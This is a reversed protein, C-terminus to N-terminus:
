HAHHAHTLELKVSAEHKAVDIGLDDPGFSKPLMNSLKCITVKNLKATTMIVDMDIQSLVAAENLCQRCAGCPAVVNEDMEDTHEANKSHGYCVVAKFKRVGEANARLMASREACITSGHAANEYNAGTIIQGDVSLLAAGVCFDSYPCYAAAAAERAKRVLKQYELPITDFPVAQPAANLKTLAFQLANEPKEKEIQEQVQKLLAIVTESDTVLKQKKTTPESMSVLAQSCSRVFRRIM